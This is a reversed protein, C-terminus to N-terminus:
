AAQTTTTDFSEKRLPSPPVGGIKPAAWHREMKMFSLM